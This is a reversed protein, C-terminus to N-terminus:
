IYDQVIIYQKSRAITNYYYKNITLPVSVDPFKVVFQNGYAKLLRVIIPKTRM